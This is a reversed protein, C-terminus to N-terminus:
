NDEDDNAISDAKQRRNEAEATQTRCEAEQKRGGSDANQM